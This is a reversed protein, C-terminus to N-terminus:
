FQELQKGVVLRGVQAPHPSKAILAIKNSNSLQLAMSEYLEESVLKFNRNSFEM